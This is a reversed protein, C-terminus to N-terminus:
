PRGWYGAMVHNSRVCIEGATRGDWPVEVDDAGFVRADVGVNPLGTTARRRRQETDALGDHCRLTVAKTVQPSAETLGYGCIVECRGGLAMELEALLVPGPPAGGVTVQVLSSLDRVALEPHNLLST